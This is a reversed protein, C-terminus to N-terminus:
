EIGGEFAHLFAGMMRLAKQKSNDEEPGKPEPPAPQAPAVFQQMEQRFSQFSNIQQQLQRIREGAQQNLRDQDAQYEGIEDCFGYELCQEPTLYTEKDMMDALEEETLNKARAMYIKRNSEMLVDLDDACKRLYEANGYAYMAMNHILMSTGLGMIIKDCALCIVSAISYAFGDVYCTKKAGHQKLLNYIAVGEKVDGGYSNVHLEIEDEEPIQELQDRFYNASTEADDYEWTDWNFDGYATVNDYIYLKHVRSNEMEEFRFMTLTKKM